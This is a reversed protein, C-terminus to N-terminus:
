CSRRRPHLVCCCGVCASASGHTEDADTRGGPIGHKSVLQVAADHGKAGGAGEFGLGGRASWWELTCLKHLKLGGDIVRGNARVLM